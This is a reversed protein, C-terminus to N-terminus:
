ARLKWYLSVGLLAIASLSAIVLWAASVAETRSVEAFPPEESPNEEPDPVPDPTPVPDPDPTDPTNVPASGSEWYRATQIRSNDEVDFSLTFRTDM